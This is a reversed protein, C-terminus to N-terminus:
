LDMKNIMNLKEMKWRSKEMQEEKLNLTLKQKKKTNKYNRLKNM